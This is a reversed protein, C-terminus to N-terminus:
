YIGSTREVYRMMKMGFNFMTVKDSFEASHEDVVGWKSLLRSCKPLLITEDVFLLLLLLALVVLLLLLLSTETGGGGGAIPLFYAKFLFQNHSKM